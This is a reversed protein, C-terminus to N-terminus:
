VDMVDSVLMEHCTPLGLNDPLFPTESPPVSLKVGCKRCIYVAVRATIASTNYGEVNMAVDFRDFIFIHNDIELDKSADEPVIQNHDWITNELPDVINEDQEDFSISDPYWDDM